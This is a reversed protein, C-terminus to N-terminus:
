WGEWEPLADIEAQTMELLTITISEGVAKSDIMDRIQDAVMDARHETVICGGCEPMTIQIVIM